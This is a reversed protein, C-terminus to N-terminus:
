FSFSIMCIGYKSIFSVALKLNIRHCVANERGTLWNNNHM